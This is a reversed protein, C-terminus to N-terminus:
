DEEFKNKYKPKKHAKLNGNKKEKAPEDKKMFKKSHRNEEM